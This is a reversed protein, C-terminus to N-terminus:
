KGTVKDLSLAQPPQHPLSPPIGKEGEISDQATDIAEMEIGNTLGDIGKEIDSNSNVLFSNCGVLSENFFKCRTRSSVFRLKAFTLKCNSCRLSSKSFHLSPNCFM